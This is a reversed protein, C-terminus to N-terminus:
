RIHIFDTTITKKIIKIVTHVICFGRRFLFFGAITLELRDISIHRTQLIYPLSPEMEGEMSKVFGGNEISRRSSVLYTIISRRRTVPKIQYMKSM